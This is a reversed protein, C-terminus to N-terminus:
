FDILESISKDVLEKVEEEIGIAKEIINNMMKDTINLKTVKLDFGKYYEVVWVEDFGGVIKHIACQQKYHKYNESDLFRPYSPSKVELCIRKGDIVCQGDISSGLISFRRDNFVILGNDKKVTTNFEQEFQELAVSESENGRDMDSSSFNDGIIEGFIQESIEQYQTFSALKRAVRASAVRLTTAKEFSSTSTIYLSRNLLWKDSGQEDKFEKRKLPFLSSFLSPTHEEEQEKWTRKFDSEYKAMFDYVYSKEDSDYLHEEFGKVAFSSDYRRGKCHEDKGKLILELTPTEIKIM